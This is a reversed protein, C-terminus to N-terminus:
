RNISSSLYWRLGFGFGMSFVGTSPNTSNSKYVNTLSHNLRAYGFFKTKKRRRFEVDLDAVINLILPNVETISVEQQSEDVGSFTSGPSKIKFNNMVSKSVMNIGFSLGPSFFVAVKGYDSKSLKISYLVPIELYHARYEFYYEIYSKKNSYINTISYGDLEYAKYDYRDGRMSYLLEFTLYNKKLPIKVDFGTLIGSAFISHEYSNGNISKVNLSSTFTSFQPGWPTRIGFYIGKQALCVSNYLVFCFTVIFFQKM